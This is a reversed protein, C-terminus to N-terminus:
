NLDVREDSLLLVYKDIIYQAINEIIDYAWVLSFAFAMIADTSLLPILNRNGYAMFSTEAFSLYSVYLSLTFLIGLLTGCVVAGKMSMIFVGNNNENLVPPM